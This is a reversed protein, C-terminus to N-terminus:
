RVCRVLYENSVDYLNAHGIYFYVGWAYSTEWQYNPKRASASSSWFLESSTSSFAGQDIAPSYQTEDVITQLEKVSPLRWGNGHLDLNKCHTIASAWNMKSGNPTRQWELGTRTDTVTGGGSYTYRGPPAEARPSHTLLLAACFVVTQIKM